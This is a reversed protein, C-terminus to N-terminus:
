FPVIAALSDDHNRSPATPARHMGQDRKTPIPHYTVRLRFQWLSMRKILILLARASNGFSKSLELPAFPTADHRSVICNGRLSSWFTNPFRAVWLIEERIAMYERGLRRLGYLSSYELTM